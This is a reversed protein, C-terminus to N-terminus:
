FDPYYPNNLEAFTTRSGGVYGVEDTSFMKANCYTDNPSSTRSCEPGQARMRM